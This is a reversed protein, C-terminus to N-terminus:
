GNITGEKAKEIEALRKELRQKSQEFADDDIQIEVIEEVNKGTKIEIARRHWYFVTEWELGM